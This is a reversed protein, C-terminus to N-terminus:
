TFTLLTHSMANLNNISRNFIHLFNSFMAFYKCYVPGSVFIGGFCAAPEVIEIAHLRGDSGVSNNLISNILVAFVVFM